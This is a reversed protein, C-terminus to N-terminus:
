ASAFEKIAAALRERQDESVFTYSDDILALRGHPLIEVMRRAYDLPFL